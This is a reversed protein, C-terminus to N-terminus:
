IGRRMFESCFVAVAASVNLSEAHHRHQSFSPISLHSNIYNKLSDHIGKSENGFILMGTNSLQSKYISTGEIFAGYIIFENFMSLRELLAALDVYFVPVRLVSGMSAQVVKPSFCDACGHSCFIRSIGFWDAIRIITGLNGPDQITDLGISLQNRVEDENFSYQPVPLVAMAGTPSEFSTIKNFEHESVETIEHIGRHLLHQKETLWESTAILQFVVEKRRNLVESVLKDGEIIFLGSEVRFKKIKLSNIFKIKSKSLM